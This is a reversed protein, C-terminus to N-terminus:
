AARADTVVGTVAGTTIQAKAPSAAVLLVVLISALATVIWKAM